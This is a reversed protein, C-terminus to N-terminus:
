EREYAREFFDMKYESRQLTYPPIIRLVPTLALKAMVAKELREALDEIRDPPFSEGYEVKLELGSDIAPGPERLVIRFEGTVEPIFSCVVSKVASPFVNVGKVRIMEDSRGLVTFRFSTRGCPCPSTYVRVIDRCRYRLVPTAERDITTYVIEGEAGDMMEVPELGNADVLEALVMGQGCFHMGEGEGCESALDPAVDALGYFSRAVLGFEEEIRARDEETLAEGAMYGKKFGLERPDIKAQNRLYDALFVTASPTAFLITPRLDRAIQLLREMGTAALPAPIVCIGMAEASVAESLGGVSLSFDAPDIMSDGPRLGGTWAHRAFLEKWNAADRATLGVYLPRRTTGSTGQIRVISTFPACQHGGLGGYEGQSGLLDDKTLFPLKALDERQRIDRPSLGARSIIERYFPSNEYMYSIQSALRDSELRYLKRPPLTEIEEDWYTKEMVESM